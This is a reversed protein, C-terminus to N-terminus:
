RHSAAQRTVAGMPRHPPGAARGRGRPRVRPAEAEGARPQRHPRLVAAARERPRRASRTWTPKWGCRWRGTAAEPGIGLKRVESPDLSRLGATTDLYAPANVPAVDVLQRHRPAADPLGAGVPGVRGRRRPHPVRLQSAVDGRQVLEMVDSRSQPPTVNYDLGQRRDVAAADRCRHHRAAHQRRPQLPGDCGALRRRSEQQLLVARRGRRFRRPEPLVRSFMAAYGGIRPSEGAAARLEVTMLTFRREVASM